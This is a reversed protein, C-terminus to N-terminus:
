CVRLSVARDKCILTTLNLNINDLFNGEDDFSLQQYTWLRTAFQFARLLDKNKLMNSINDDFISALPMRVSQRSRGKKFAGDRQQLAGKIGFCLYHSIPTMM